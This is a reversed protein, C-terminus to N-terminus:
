GVKEANAIVFQVDDAVIGALQAAEMVQKLLNDVDARASRGGGKLHAPGYLIDTCEEIRIMTENWRYNFLVTLKVPGSFARCGEAFRMAKALERRHLLPKPRNHPKGDKGIGTRDWPVPRGKFVLEFASM